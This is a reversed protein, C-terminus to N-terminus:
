GNEVISGRDILIVVLVDLTHIGVNLVSKLNRTNTVIVEKVLGQVKQTFGKRYFISIRRSFLIDDTAEARHRRWYTTIIVYLIM